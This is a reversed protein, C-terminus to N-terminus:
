KAVTKKRLTEDLSVKKKTLNEQVNKSTGALWTVKDHHFMIGAANSKGKVLSNKPVGCQKLFVSAQTNVGNALLMPTLAAVKMPSPKNSVLKQLLIRKKDKSMRESRNADKLSEKASKSRRSSKLSAAVEKELDSLFRKDRITSLGAFKEDKLVKDVSEIKLLKNRIKELEKELEVKRERLRSNKIFEKKLLEKAELTLKLQDYDLM